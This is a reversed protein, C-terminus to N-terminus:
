FCARRSHESECVTYTSQQLALRLIRLGVIRLAKSTIDGAERRRRDQQTGMNRCLYEFQRFTVTRGFHQLHEAAYEGEAPQLGTSLPDQTELGLTELTSRLAARNARSLTVAMLSQVAISSTDHKDASHLLALSVRKSWQSRTSSDDADVFARWEEIRRERFRYGEEPTVLLQKIADFLRKQHKRVLHVLLAAALMLGCLVGALVFPTSKSSAKETGCQVCM